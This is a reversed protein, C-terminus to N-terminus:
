GFGKPNRGRVNGYGHESIEKYNGPTGSKGRFFRKRRCPIEPLSGSLEAKEALLRGKQALLDVNTPDLKLLRDVEKLDNSVKYISRDVNNLAKGLKTTDGAIEITIGKVRSSSAM